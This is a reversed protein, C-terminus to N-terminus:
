KGPVKAKLEEFWNTIVHIDTRSTASEMVLFHEGDPTVDYQRRYDYTRLPFLKTPQGRVIGDTVRVAVLSDRTQYFLEGGRPNWKPGLGGDISVRQRPGSGSFPRVYIEWHGSEDSQYAMWKGDPSVAAEIENASTAILPSRSGRRSTNTLVIDRNGGAGAENFLLDDGTVFSAPKQHARATFLREPEGSGDAFVRSLNFWGSEDRSSFVV